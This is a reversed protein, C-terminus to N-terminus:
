LGATLRGVNGAAFYPSFTHIRDRRRGYSTLGDIQTDDDILWGGGSAGPTWHCRIAMTPPGPFGYSLRDDGVYPSDCRQMRESEGPYAFTQFEQQRPLGISLKVGGVTDAVDYGEANPLTLFAGIDFNPNGQRVWPRPAYVRGREAVFVGFPAVGEDFAPVFELSQSWIGKRRPGLPGSNVCHGATLVLRRTTSDIATGSCFGQKAGQRVFVRGNVSFPPVTPTPVSQFSATAIADRPSPAPGAGLPRASRMRAPTWYRLVRAAASAVGAAVGTPAHLRPAAAASSLPASLTALALCALGALM